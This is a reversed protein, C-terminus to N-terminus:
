KKVLLKTTSIATGALVSPTAATTSLTGNKQVYYKKGVTLGTHNDNTTGIIDINATGSNAVSDGRLMGIFTTASLNSKGVNFPWSKLPPKNGGGTNIQNSNDAYIFAIRDKTAIGLNCESDYTGLRYAPSYESVNGVNDVTVFFHESGYSPSTSINKYTVVFQKSSSDYFVDSDAFAFTYGISQVNLGTGFSINTNGLGIQATKVSAYGLSGPGAGYGSCYAILFQRTDPDFALDFNDGVNASHAAYEAGADIQQGYKYVARIVAYGDNPSGTPRYMLAAAGRITDFAIKCGIMGNASRITSEVGGVTPSGSVEAKVWRAYATVSKAYAVIAVNNTTDFCATIHGPTGTTFTTKTAPFSISNDTPDVVFSRVMGTGSPTMLAFVMGQNINSDFCLATYTTTTTEFKVPTGFQITNQYADPVTGAVVYGAGVDPLSYAVLIRDNHSDYAISPSSTDVGYNTASDVSFLLEGGTLDQPLQHTFGYAKRESATMGGTNDSSVILSRKANSDYAVSPYHGQTNSSPHPDYPLGLSIQNGSKTGEVIRLQNAQDQARFVIIYTQRHVDYGIDWEGPNLSATYSQTVGNGVVVTTGQIDAYKIRGQNGSNSKFIVVLDSGYLHAKCSFCYQSDLDAASSPYAINGANVNNPTVNGVRAKPYSQNGDDTWCVVVKSSGDNVVSIGQSNANSFEDESGLQDIALGNISVVRTKGKTTSSNMYAIVFRNMSGGPIYTVSPFQGVSGVSTATAAQVSIVGASNMSVTLIEGNGSGSVYFVLFINDETSFATAVSNIGGATIATEAGFTVTEGDITASVGKLKPWGGDQDTQDAYLVLFKNVNSDYCVTNYSTEGGGSPYVTLDGMSRGDNTITSVTGNVNINVGRGNPLIGSATFSVKSDDKEPISKM